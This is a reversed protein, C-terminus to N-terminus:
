EAAPLKGSAIKEGFTPSSTDSPKSKLNAVTDLAAQIKASDKKDKKSILKELQKGYVNRVKKTPGAHCTACSVQKFAQALAVDSAATSDPKIYKGAFAEKFEKLALAPKAPLGILGLVTLFLVASFFSFKKSM